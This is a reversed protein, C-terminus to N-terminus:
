QITETRYAISDKGTLGVSSIGRKSLQNALQYAEERSSVFILGKLADGSYGYYNTKKIIHEVRENSALYKLNFADEQ